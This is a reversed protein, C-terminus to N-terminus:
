LLIVNKIDQAYILYKTMGNDLVQRVECDKKIFYVTILFSTLTNYM